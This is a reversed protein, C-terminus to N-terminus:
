KQEAFAQSVFGNLEQLLKLQMEAIRQRLSAEGEARRDEMEAVLEAVTPYADSASLRVNLDGGGALFSAVRSRSGSLAASSLESKLMGAVVDVLLGMERCGQQTLAREESALVRDLRVIGSRVAGSPAQPPSVKLLFKGQGGVVEDALFAVAGGGARAASNAVVEHIRARGDAVARDFAAQLLGEAEAEVSRREAELGGILKSAQPLPDAPPALRLNVVPDSQSFAAVAGSAMCFLVRLMAFIIWYVFL